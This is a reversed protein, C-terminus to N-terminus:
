ISNIGHLSHAPKQQLLQKHTRKMSTLQTILSWFTWHHKLHKKNYNHLILNFYESPWNSSKVLQHVWLLYKMRSGHIFDVSFHRQKFPISFLWLITQIPLEWETGVGQWWTLSGVWGGVISLQGLAGDLRAKSVKMSPADVVIIYFLNSAVASIQILTIFSTSESHFCNFYNFIYHLWSLFM